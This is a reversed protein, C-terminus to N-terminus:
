NKCFEDFLESEIKIFSKSAKVMADKFSPMPMEPLGWEFHENKMFSLNQLALVLFENIDEAKTLRSGIHYNGFAADNDLLWSIIDQKKIKM